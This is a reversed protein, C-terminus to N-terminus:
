YKGITERYGSPTQGTVDRFVRNFTAISNFGVETAVVHVPIAPDNLMRKADAIRYENIVQPFSKGFYTNIVKSLTNESCGIERALDARSFEPEHYLKDEDLLKRAKEAFVHEEGRLPLAQGRAVVSLLVPPPYVRFLTTIALYVFLLELAVILADADGNGLYGVSRLLNVLVAGINAAILTLVLWYRERGGKAELLRAFLKEHMWLMLMAVAGGMSGLWYLLNVFRPCGWIGGDCIDANTAGVVAALAVIPLILLILFNRGRPLGSLIVMQLVLLYCVLPSATTTAWLLFRVTYEYEDLRMSFQMAFGCILLFFYAIALSAQAWSRIRFFMYVLILVGQAFGTIALWEILSFSTEYGRLM